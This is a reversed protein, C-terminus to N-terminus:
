GIWGRTVALYTGASVLIWLAVGQLLPRAGVKKLMAPTLGAGILFLTLVLSQKAVASVGQWLRPAPLVLALIAAALFGVVFLPVRAKADGKTILGTVVVAPAIWVARTLKVTTAIGLAGAGYASAAGVVSSTDHIAVGAWVGFEHGGMGAWHGFLPFLFLAAANLTFVTALAVASEDDHAKVVPAMAAIASGGCIATGFSVLASTRTGTGFLRGLFLGCSVTLVIGVATFLISGRGVSWVEALNMGFGLGVVSIQLLNKSIKGTEKHWPNGVALSFAIGAALAAGTSVVPLLCAGALVLFGAKRWDFPTRKNEAADVTEM